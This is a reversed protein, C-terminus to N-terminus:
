ESVKKKKKAKVPQKRREKPIFQSEPTIIIPFKPLTDLYDEPIIPLLMDFFDQIKKESVEDTDPLHISEDYEWPLVDIREMLESLGRITLGNFEELHGSLIRIFIELIHREIWDVTIPEEIIYDPAYYLEEARLSHHFALSFEQENPIAALRYNKIHQFLADSEEKLKLKQAEYSAIDQDNRAKKGVAKSLRRGLKWKEDDKTNALEASLTSIDRSIKVNESKRESIARVYDAILRDFDQKVKEVDLTDREYWERKLRDVVGIYDIVETVYPIKELLHKRLEEFREHLFASLSHLRELETAYWEQDLREMAADMKRGKIERDRIRRDLRWQRADSGPKNELGEIWWTVLTEDTVERELIEVVVEPAVQTIVLTLPPKESALSKRLKTFLHWSPERDAEFYVLDNNDSFLRWPYKGSTEVHAHYIKLLPNSPPKPAWAIIDTHLLWFAAFVARLMEVKRWKKWQTSDIFDHEKEEEDELANVMEIFHIIDKREIKATTEFSEFFAIVEMRRSKNGIFAIFNDLWDCILSAYNQNNDPFM